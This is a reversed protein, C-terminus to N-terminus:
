CIAGTAAVSNAGTKTANSSLREFHSTQDARRLLPRNAPMLHVAAVEVAQQRQQVAGRRALLLSAAKRGLNVHAELGPSVTM